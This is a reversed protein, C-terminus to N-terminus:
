RIDRYEVICNPYQSEFALVARMASGYTPYTETVITYKNNRVTVQHTHVEQHTNM